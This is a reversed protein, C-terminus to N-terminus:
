TQKDARETHLCAFPEQEQQLQICCSIVAVILHVHLADFADDTIPHLM